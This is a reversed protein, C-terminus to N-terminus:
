EGGNLPSCFEGSFKPALPVVNGIGVKPNKMGRTGPM